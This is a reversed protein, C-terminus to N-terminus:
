GEDIEGKSKRWLDQFAKHEGPHLGELQEEGESDKRPIEAGDIRGGRVWMKKNLSKFTIFM